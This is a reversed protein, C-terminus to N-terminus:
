SPETGNETAPRWYFEGRTDRQLLGNGVLERRLSATDPHRNKLITNVEKETYKRNKDFDSVLWRLIVELKKRQAPIQKLTGDPTTFDRLIKQDYATIEVDTVAKEYTQRSLLQSALEDLRQNELRYFNYYSEARASVLGVEALRSLHHSITSPRLKLYEALQEVSLEQRGLLGIIKLRTSDALAKFLELVEQSQIPNNTM